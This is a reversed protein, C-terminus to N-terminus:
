LYLLGDSEYILDIVGEMIQGSFPILLPVERGLIRARALELYFESRFFSQLMSKLEAAAKASRSRFEEPIKRDVYTKLETPFIEPDATFDWDQLFGHALNGILLAWSRNRKPGTANAAEAIGAEAQKVRTPTLFPPLQQAREFAAARRAWTSTYGRWDRKEKFSNSKTSGGPPLLNERSVRVEIECAGISIRGSQKAAEIGGNLPADLLELFGGSQRNAPACSIVLNERARTMAVYLLRKQEEANRRRAKESIYLGALDSISGIRLGTLGTSWDFLAE